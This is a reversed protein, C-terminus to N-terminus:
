VMAGDAPKWKFGVRIVGHDNSGSEKHDDYNLHDNEVVMEDFAWIRRKSNDYFEQSFMIHDLSERNGKFVHTYYVDRVSRYEQMTQATYLANDGGGSSLPSLYTPQESLINLTNSDKGDNMDGIVVVPTDTKKTLNTVLVRLAAAEATRRVTSVAYGLAAAHPGHVGKKYWSRERWIQTPRRSKFHCVFVHIEPTRPDPKVKFHLVPRSFTSLNVEIFDQQPDDGGSRLVYEPPFDTIWEPEGVLMGKRVLAACVISKGNHTPPVLPTYEGTLEGASLAQDLADAAWLEQLGIVDADQRLLVDRTFNIKRAFIDFDWGDTDGYIAEGPLQLNLLNFSAFSIDRAGM